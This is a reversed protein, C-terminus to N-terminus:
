WRGGKGKGKGSNSNGKSQMDPSVWQPNPFFQQQGYPGFSGPPLMAQPPGFSGPPLMGPPPGFSGQWGPQLALATGQQSPPPQKRKARGPEARHQSPDDTQPPTRKRTHDEAATEGREPARKQADNTRALEDYTPRYESCWISEQGTFVLQPEQGQAIYDAIDDRLKQEYELAFLMGRDNSIKNLVIRFASIGAM